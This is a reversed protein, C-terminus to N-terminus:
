YKAPSLISFFSIPQAHLAYPHPSPYTYPRIPSVPPFSGSPFCLHLHISLILVSRWCTPHPYIPQIPSTWTLSLHRVTTLATIFRRIGHFTLFKKVLNLGILQELLVRCWPTPLFTFESM